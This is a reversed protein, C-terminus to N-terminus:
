ACVRKRRERLQRLQDQMKYGQKATYGHRMQSEIRRIKAKTEACELEKRDADSAGALFPLSVLLLLAAVPRM